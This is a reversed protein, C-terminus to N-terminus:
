KLGKAEYLIPLIEKVMKPDKNIELARELYLIANKTDKNKLYGEGLSSTINSSEPYLYYNAQFIALSEKMKNQALLLYAASNLENENNVLPKLQTSLSRATINQDLFTGDTLWKTLLSLSRYTPSYPQNTVISLFDKELSNVPYETIRNIETGNKTIIFTPVRFIGLGKEEHNPSQKYLSDSDGVAIIKINNIPFNIENMLKLFRPVERKSDGCWTGFFLQITIDKWNLKKLQIVTETNPQYSNYGAVFWKDYPAQILSDKTITGFLIRPKPENSQAISNYSLFIISIAIIIKSM